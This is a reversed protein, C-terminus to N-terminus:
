GIGKPIPRSYFVYDADSMLVIKDYRLKSLDFEEGIGCKLTKILELQKPSKVVKDLTTKATNMGKGFFPFIAQTRRDRGQKASGGASDGEVIFLMCEEPNKSSCDALGKAAGADVAKIGRAADRARKAALRVKAANLVKEMVVDAKNKDKSLYDFFYDETLQRIATRIEGMRLKSKGQGEFNPDKLKVSIIVQMGEKCDSSEIQTKNKIIKNELAYKRIANHLGNSFGLEHDGGYETGVNNVFSKLGSSYNKAYSFAIEISVNLDETGTLEGNDDYINKTGYVVNKEFIEPSILMEVAGNIENLYGILGEPNEYTDMIQVPNGDSDKSDVMYNIILGKNLFSLQRLRNKVHNFDYWEDRWVDKDLVFHVETGTEGAEVKEGTEYLKKITIGKQFEICYEKERTRIYLNCSESTANVCSAGVM